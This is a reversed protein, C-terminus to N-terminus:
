ELLAYAPTNNLCSNTMLLSQEFCYNSGALGPNVLWDTSYWIAASLILSVSPVNCISTFERICAILFAQPSHPHQFCVPEGLQVQVLLKATLAM